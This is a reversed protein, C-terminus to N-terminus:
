PLARVVSKIAVRRHPGDHPADADSMTLDIDSDVNAAPVVVAANIAILPLAIASMGLDERMM